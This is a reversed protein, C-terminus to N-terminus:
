PDGRLVLAGSPDTISGCVFAHRAQEVQNASTGRLQRVAELVHNLGHVFGEGNSGGHTNVPLAGGAARTAGSAIMEGGGGLECFGYQELSLPVAMTFHDFILAVDVDAPRVGAAAFLDPAMARAGSTREGFLATSAFFTALDVHIPGDCQGHAAIGVPRARLDRAQAGTTVLVAVAGDHELACDFLRIPEAIPRSAAWEDLTIPTRLIAAPNRSAHERQVVAQMGFHEARTGFVHMHRRAILAMEHVPAAVGFPHHWQQHGGVVTGAKAWPRGGQNPDAGYSAGKSRNRARFAICNTAAGAAVALAALGVVSAAGGGGSPTRAMFRLRELGLTSALEVEDVQEVHYSAIGDIARIELGADGCARRIAECALDLESRGLDKAFATQGIGAIATHGDLRVVGNRADLAPV